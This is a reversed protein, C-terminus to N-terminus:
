DPRRVDPSPPPVSRERRRQRLLPPVTCLGLVLMVIGQWTVDRSLYALVILLLLALSGAQVPWPGALLVVADNFRRFARRPRNLV